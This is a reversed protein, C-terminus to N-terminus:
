LAAGEADRRELLGRAAAEPERGEHGHAVLGVERAVVEEGVPILVGPRVDDQQVELREAVRALEAAECPVNGPVLGDHRHLRPARRRALAGRGRVRPRQESGAVRGDVRQEPVGPDDAGVRHALEEVHGRQQGVLRERGAVPDGDDGVGAPRPDDARVGASGAPQPDLRQGLRRAIPERLPERGM